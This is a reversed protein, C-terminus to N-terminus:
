IKIYQKAVEQLKIANLQYINEMQLTIDTRLTKVNDLTQREKGSGDDLTTNKCKTIIINKTKVTNKTNWDTQKKIEQIGLM